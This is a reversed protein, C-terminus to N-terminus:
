EVRQVVLCVVMALLQMTVPVFTKDWFMSARFIPFTGQCGSM